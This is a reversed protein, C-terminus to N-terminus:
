IQVNSYLYGFSGLVLFSLVTFLIKVRRTQANRKDTEIV